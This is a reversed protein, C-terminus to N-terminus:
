SFSSVNLVLVWLAACTFSINLVDVRFCHQMQVVVVTNSRIVTLALGSDLVLLEGKINLKASNLVM